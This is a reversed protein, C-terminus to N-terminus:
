FYRVALMWRAGPSDSFIKQDEDEIYDDCLLHLAKGLKNQWQLMTQTSVCIKQMDIDVISEWEGSQISESVALAFENSDLNDDGCFVIECGDAAEKFDEIIEYTLPVDNGLRIGFFIDAESSYSM